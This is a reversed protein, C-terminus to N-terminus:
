VLETYTFVPVCCSELSPALKVGEVPAAALHIQEPGRESQRLPSHYKHKFM